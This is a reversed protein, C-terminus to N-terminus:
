IELASSAVSLSRAAYHFDHTVDIFLAGDRDCTPAMGRAALDGRLGM